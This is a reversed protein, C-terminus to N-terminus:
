HWQSSRINTRLEPCGKRGDSMDVTGSPELGHRHVVIRIKVGKQYGHTFGGATLDHEIGAKIDFPLRDYVRGFFSDLCKESRAYLKQEQLVEINGAGDSSCFRVATLDAVPAVIASRKEVCAERVGSAM